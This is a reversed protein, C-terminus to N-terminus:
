TTYEANIKVYDYTLDCGWAIGSAQGQGLVVRIKVEDVGMAESVAAPDHPAYAGDAAVQTEGIYVDIADPDLDVGANGVAAVIRGWNPDRGFIAAKVLNSSVVSRAMLRADRESAAGEVVVEVLRTAGEGDRAMMRALAICVTELGETFQRAEATGPQIPPIGSAGSALVLVM